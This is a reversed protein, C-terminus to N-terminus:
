RSGHGDLSRAGEEAWTDHKVASRVEGSPRSRINAASPHTAAVRVETATMRGLKAGDAYCRREIQHSDGGSVAASRNM